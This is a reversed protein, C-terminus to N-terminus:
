WRKGGIEGDLWLQGPVVDDGYDEFDSTKYHKVITSNDGNKEFVHIDELVFDNLLLPSHTAIILQAKKASEKMMGAISHIMDPHLRGEPEDLGILSGTHRNLLVTEMLVYRLTGDSIFRIGITHRMNKEGLSMYLRSGFSQFYFKTFGGNVTKLKEEITEYTMIDQVSLNNLVSVINEGGSILKLESSSKSPKRIVGDQRTDFTEFLAMQSIATKITHSPLFRRPDSIQRLILEQASTDGAFRETRIGERHYVSLTGMENKFDLFVFPENDKKRNPAFLREELTYSHEGMPKIIISYHVDDKFPSKGVLEKLKKHDFIYTLAIEKPVDTGNANVVEYFGGWELQFLSEFGTGCVGEYLLRLANIFSTKGSGNIGLLLNIGPNLDIRCEGKFSFFDKIIISKLM